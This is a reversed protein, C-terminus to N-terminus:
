KSAAQICCANKIEKLTLTNIDLKLLFLNLVVVAPLFNIIGRKVKQLFPPLFLMSCSCHQRRTLNWRSLIIVLTIALQSIHM